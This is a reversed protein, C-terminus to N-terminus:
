VLSFGLQGLQSSLRLSFLLSSSPSCTAPHFCADDICVGWPLSRHSIKSALRLSTSSTSQCGSIRFWASSVGRALSLWLVHSDRVCLHMHSRLWIAQFKASYYGQGCGILIRKVTSASKHVRRNRLTEESERGLPTLVRKWPDHSSLPLEAPVRRVDPASILSWGPQKM